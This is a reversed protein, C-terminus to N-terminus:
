LFFLSVENQRTIGNNFGDMKIKNESEKCINKEPYYIFVTNRSKRNDRSTYM